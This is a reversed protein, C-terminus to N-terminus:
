AEICYKWLLYSEEFTSMLIPAVRCLFVRFYKDPVSLLREKVNLELELAGCRIVSALPRWPVTDTEQGLVRLLSQMGPVRRHVLKHLCNFVLGM